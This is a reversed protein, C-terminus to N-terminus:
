DRTVKGWIWFGAVVLAVLVALRVLLVFTSAIIGVLWILVLAVVVGGIIAPLPGPGGGDSPELAGM